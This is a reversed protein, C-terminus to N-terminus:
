GRGLYGAAADPHLYIAHGVGDVVEPVGGRVAALRVSIGRFIASTESGHSFRVDVPASALSAEDVAEPALGLTQAAYPILREFPQVM